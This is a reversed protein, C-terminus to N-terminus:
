NRRIFNILLPDNFARTMTSNVTKNIIKENELASPTKLYIHEDSSSYNGMYSQNGNSIKMRMKMSVEIRQKLHDNRVIYDLKTLSVELRYEGGNFRTIGMDELAHEATHALIHEANNLVIEPKPEKDTQRYGLVPSSRLDRAIVEFRKSPSLEHTTEVQPHLDLEQTTISSCGALTIVGLTFLTKQIRKIMGNKKMPKRRKGRM